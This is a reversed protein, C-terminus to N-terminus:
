EEKLRAHWHMHDLVARQKKDIFYSKGEYFQNSVEILFVEMMQKDPDPVDMTHERWVVMPVLCSDCDM